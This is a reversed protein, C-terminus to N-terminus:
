EWISKLNYGILQSEAPLGSLVLHGFPRNPFLLATMCVQGDDAFLELSSHDLFIHLRITNDKAQRTAVARQAFHEHFGTEGSQRRDIYFQNEKKNFGVSVKEGAGNTFMLEFGEDPLVDTDMELLIENLGSIELTDILSEIVLPSSRLTQLEDVPQTFLRLGDTTEKLEIQRPLTMASRWNEGPVITAYLWNSMWGIYLRRGDSEPINSWSIGAYNDPGYDLYLALSDPYDNVFRRGDFDGVFYRTCTGGNPGGANDSVTLVWKDIGNIRYPFLDPCEWVGKLIKDNEYKSQYTWDMLNPSAYFEIRNKVALVMIWQKTPEHWLVDPDRFDPEGQNPLM